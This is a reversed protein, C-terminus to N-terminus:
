GVALAWWGEPQCAEEVRLTEKGGHLLLNSALVTGVLPRKVLDVVLSLYSLVDDCAIVAADLALLDLRNVLTDEDM